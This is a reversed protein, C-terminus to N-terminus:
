FRYLSSQESGRGPVTTSCRTKKIGSFARAPLTTRLVDKRQCPAGSGQLRCGGSGGRGATIVAVTPIFLRNRTRRCCPLQRIWCQISWIPIGDFCDIMPFLYVKGDSLGFETIDTLWKENPRSAKFDRDILNDAAPTIEGKYSSYKARRPQKVTLRM